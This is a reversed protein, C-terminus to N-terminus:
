HGSLFRQVLDFQDPVNLAPAHGCGPITVVLARPGRDRMAEATDALLLDSEAGRLCLVPVEIRDFTPWLEYDQPHHEFQQVMAPDYHPTVRGDPLRRLSSETLQRWQADPLYGYPKYVTRFFQELEHVTGFAPPNGAYARIRAVAPAALQPGIDNLVLREIRGQLPGAACVMGIAGGMSTGVWHFRQLGLQDVLSRALRAYFSLCYEEQPKPSWQSLGRGLTDPCIVRWGQACLHAALPDMDRGTRALGHWAIVVPGGAQAPVWDTFHIERGECVLYRSRPEPTALNM